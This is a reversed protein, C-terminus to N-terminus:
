LSEEFYSGKHEASCLFDYLNPIVQPHIIVSNENKPSSDLGTPIDKDQRVCLFINQLWAILPAGSSSQKGCEESYRGKHEALNLIQLRWM